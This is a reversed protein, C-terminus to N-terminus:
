TRGRLARSAGGGFAHIWGAVKGQYRANIERFDERRVNAIVVALLPALLWAIGLYSYVTVAVALALMLICLKFVWLYLLFIGKIM